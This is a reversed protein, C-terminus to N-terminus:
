EGQKIVTREDFTFFCPYDIIDNSTVEKLEIKDVAYLPFNFYHINKSGDFNIKNELDSIDYLVNNSNSKGLVLAQLKESKIGTKLCYNNNTIKVKDLNELNVCSILRQMNSNSTIKLNYLENYNEAISYVGLLDLILQIEKALKFSLDKIQFYYINNKSCLDQKNKLFGTLFASIYENSSEKICRPVGHNEFFLGLYYFFDVVSYDTEIILKKNYIRYYSEVSPFFKNFLNYFVDISVPNDIYICNKGIKPEFSVFYGLFESLELTIKENYSFVKSKFNIEFPKNLFDNYSNSGVLIDGENIEKLYKKQIGDETIVSFLDKENSYFKNIQDKLTIKSIM